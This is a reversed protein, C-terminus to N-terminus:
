RLAGRRQAPRRGPPVGPTPVQSERSTPREFGACSAPWTQQAFGTTAGNAPRNQAGECSAL